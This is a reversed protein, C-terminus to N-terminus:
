RGLLQAYRQPQYGEVTEEGIRVAPFGNVGEAQLETQIKDQTARDALDYDIYEFPVHHETFYQKTQECYPCTSLTYMRVKTM